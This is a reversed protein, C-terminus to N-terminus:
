HPAMTRSRREKRARERSGGSETRPHLTIPRASVVRLDSAVSHLLFAAQWWSPEYNAPSRYHRLFFCAALWTSKPAFSRGLRSMAVGSPNSARQIKLGSDMVAQVFSESVAQLLSM